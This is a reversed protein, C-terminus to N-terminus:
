GDPEKIGRRIWSDAWDILNDIWKTDETAMYGYYFGNLFPSILWGIEEGMEKIPSWLCFADHGRLLLHWLLEKYKERSLPVFDDSVKQPKEVTQWHVFSIIPITSPTNKGVSTAEKMLPYFWRYEKPEFNYDSFFRYWTYIVPMAMTYGTYQFEDFWKRHLANHKKQYIAGQTEKEFYDWWYRYGDHPNVAYNGILCEPYYEKVTKVFVQRQLEARKMRITKQYESFDNLNKINQRCTKCKKSNEWADNWEMPGDIEWDVAWYNIDIGEKKYAQLFKDIREAIVPYRTEIKFPCGIKVGKSFSTDFFPKGEEDIHATELSGDFFMHVIGTADVFVFLNLQKRIKDIKLAEQIGKEIGEKPIRWGTLLVLKREDLKKLYDVIQDESINVPIRAWVFIPFRKGTDSTIPVTNKILIDCVNEQAMVVGTYYCFILLIVIKM